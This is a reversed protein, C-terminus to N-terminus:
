KISHKTLCLQKNSMKVVKYVYNPCLKGKVDMGEKDTGELRMQRKCILQSHFYHTLGNELTKVKKVM